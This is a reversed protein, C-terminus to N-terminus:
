KFYEQYYKIANLSVVNFKNHNKLLEKIQILILLDIFVVL